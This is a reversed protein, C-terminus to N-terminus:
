IKVGLVPRLVTSWGLSCLIYWGLWGLTNKLVIPPWSLAPIPLLFPLVISVGEYVAALRQFIFLGLFSLIMTPVMMKTMIKGQADLVKDMLKDDVKGKNRMDMLQKQTDKIFEQAKKLEPNNFQVKQVLLFALSVWGAVLAIALTPDM